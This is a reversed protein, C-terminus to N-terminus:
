MSLQSGERQRTGKCHTVTLFSFFGVNSSLTLYIPAGHLTAESISSIFLEPKQLHSEEETRHNCQLSFCVLAHMVFAIFDCQSTPYNLEHGHHFSGRDQATIARQFKWALHSILYLCSSDIQLRKGLPESLSDFGLEHAWGSSIERSVLTIVTYILSLFMIFIHQMEEM